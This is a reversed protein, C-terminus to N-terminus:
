QLIKKLSFFFNLPKVAENVPTLYLFFPMRDNEEPQIYLFAPPKRKLFLFETSIKFTFM